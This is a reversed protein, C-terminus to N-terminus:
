TVIEELHRLAPEIASAPLALRYRSQARTSVRESEFLYPAALSEGFRQILEDKIRNRNQDLTKSRLGNERLDNIAKAHGDHAAMFDALWRGAARDPRNSPPNAYWGDGDSGGECRQRAYWLYYFLPTRPLAVASGRVRVEARELDFALHDDRRAVALAAEADGAHHTLAWLFWAQRREDLGERHLMLALALQEPFPWEIRERLRELLASPDTECSALPAVWRRARSASVGEGRLTQYWAQQSGTLPTPLLRILALALVALVGGQGLAAWWAPQCNVTFAAHLTTDEHRWRIDIDAGVTTERTAPGLASVTTRCSQIAPRLGGQVDLRDLDAQLQGAITGYLSDRDDGNVLAQDVAGPLSAQLQGELSALASQRAVVVMLLALGGALVLAALGTWWPRASM